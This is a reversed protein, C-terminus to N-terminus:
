LLKTQRRLVGFNPQSQMKLGNDRQLKAIATKEFALAHWRRRTNPLGTISPRLPRRNSAQRIRFGVRRRWSGIIDKGAAKVIRGCTQFCGSYPPKIQQVRDSLQLDLITDEFVFHLFIAQTNAFRWGFGRSQLQVAPYSLVM